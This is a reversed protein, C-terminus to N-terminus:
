YRIIAEKPYGLELLAPVCTDEEFAPPGCMVAVHSTGNASASAAAGSTFERRGHQLAIRFEM